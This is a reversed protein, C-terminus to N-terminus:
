DNRQAVATKVTGYSAKIAELVKSRFSQNLDAEVDQLLELPDITGAVQNNSKQLRIENQAELLLADIDAETIPVNHSKLDAIKAVVEQIKKDEFSLVEQPAKIDKNTSESQNALEMNENDNHSLVQSPVQKDNQFTEVSSATKDEVIDLKDEIFSNADMAEPAVSEKVDEVPTVVIKNTSNENKFFISVVFLVGIISAAIGLWWFTKNNPKTAASDLRNSLKDWAQASPQISRNELTEKIKNEFNNSEM